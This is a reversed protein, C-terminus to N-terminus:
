SSNGRCDSWGGTTRRCVVPVGLRWRTTWCLLMEAVRSVTRGGQVCDLWSAQFYRCWFRLKTWRIKSQAKPNGSHAILSCFDPPVGEPTLLCCSGGHTAQSSYGDWQVLAERLYESILPSILDEQQGDAPCLAQVYGTGM